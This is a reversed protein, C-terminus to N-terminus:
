QQGILIVVMLNDVFLLPLVLAVVGGVEPEDITLDLPLSTENTEVYTISM